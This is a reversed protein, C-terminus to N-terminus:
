APTKAVDYRPGACPKKALSQGLSTPRPPPPKPGTYGSLVRCYFARKIAVLSDYETHPGETTKLISLPSEFNGANIGGRM